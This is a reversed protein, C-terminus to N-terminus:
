ALWAYHSQFRFVAGLSRRRGDETLAVRRTTRNFLRVGLQAELAALSRVVAPLSSGLARAAATLGGHDAIAVFIHMAKLKDV